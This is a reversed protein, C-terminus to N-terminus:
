TQCMIPIQTTIVKNIDDINNMGDVQQHSKGMQVTPPADIGRFVRGMEEETPTHMGTDRVVTM